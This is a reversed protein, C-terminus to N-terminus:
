HDRSTEPTKNSATTMEETLTMFQKRAAKCEDDRGLAALSGARILLLMRRDTISPNAELRGFTEIQELAEKHRGRSHYAWALAKATYIDGPFLEQMAELLAITKDTKGHCLYLYALLLVSEKSHQDMM